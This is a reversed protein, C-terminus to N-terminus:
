PCGARFPLRSKKLWMEYLSYFVQVALSLGMLAGGAIVTYAFVPKYKTFWWSGIDLWIAVFPVLAIVIKPYKSMNSLSFILGTSIFIFSIGFLHFHSVRALTKISEGLDKATLAKIEAYTTLPVVNLGSAPSHCRICNQDFIPKVLQYGEASGGGEVWELIRKKEEDTLYVGMSGRLVGELRTDGRRGYYKHITGQLVDMGMKRHPEVDILFLYLVAILYGTGITLLYASFLAKVPLSLAKLDYEVIRVEKKM